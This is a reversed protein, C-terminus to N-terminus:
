VNSSAADMMDQKPPQSRSAKLPISLAMFASSELHSPRAYHEVWCICRARAVFLTVKIGKLPDRLVHTGFADAAIGLVVVRRQRVFLIQFHRVFVDDLFRVPCNM